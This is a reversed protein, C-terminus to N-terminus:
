PCNSTKVALRCTIDKDITLRDALKGLQVVDIVDDRMAEWKDGLAMAADNASSELNKLHSYVEPVEATFVARDGKKQQGEQATSLSLTRLYLYTRLLSQKAKVQDFPDQFKTLDSMIKTLRIREAPIRTSKQLKNAASTLSKFGGFGSITVPITMLNKCARENISAQNQGILNM